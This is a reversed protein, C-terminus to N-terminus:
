VAFRELLLAAYLAAAERFRRPDLGCLERIHNLRYQLTNKHMFRAESTEKLSGDFSFYLRLLEKDEESLGTLCRSLYASQANKNVSALLLELHMKDYITYNQGPELSRLALRAAACSLDQKLLRRRPGVGIKIAEPYEAALDSFLKEKTSFVPDRFLIVYENPFIYTSLSGGLNGILANVAAELASLPRGHKTQLEIVVTRWNEGKDELNNISLVERLFTTSITEGDILARVLNGTQTRKDYNREELEQERLLLLTIRQALDIYKRVEDPKGTIGIVAVTRSHFKIPMNIGHRLNRGPDDKEIIVIEGTRCAEIGGEHYTSIREPDTSAIIRGDTDIFNIDHDCISKLTEVIQRASIQNITSSMANERITRIGFSDM